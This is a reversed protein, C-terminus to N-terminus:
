GLLLALGLLQGGDPSQVASWWAMLRTTLQKEVWRMIRKELGSRVLTTILLCCSVRDFAKCFDLNPAKVTRGTGM